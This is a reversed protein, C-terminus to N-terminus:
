SIGVIARVWGVEAGSQEFYPIIPPRELRYTTRSAKGGLGVGREEETKGRSEGFTESLARSVARNQILVDHTFEPGYRVQLTECGGWLADPNRFLKPGCPVLPFEKLSFSCFAPSFAFFGLM